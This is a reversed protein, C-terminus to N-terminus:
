EKSVYPKVQEECWDWFEVARGTGGDKEGKMALLIDERPCVHWRGFPIVYRGGDALTVDESLGAWLNTYAGDVARGFFPYCAWYIISPTTRWVNTQLNGPNQTLSVIGTDHFRRHYESALFWNGAKSAGYHQHRKNDPTRLQKMNVGGEPAMTDVMLSSTWIIRVSNAPARKATSVLHPFLLKTLLFPGACNIGFHPELGQATKFDLPSSGVGANNFLVDLRTEAACFAAVSAAITSLDALDLHIFKLIGPTSKSGPGTTSTKIDDMAKIAHAETRTMIYVTGGALYLIRALELGIGSSGGTVIFVKGAQSPINTGTM